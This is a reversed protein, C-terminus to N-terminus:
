KMRLFKNNYSESSNFLPRSTVLRLDESFKGFCGQITKEPAYVSSTKSLECSSEEPINENIDYQEEISDSLSEQYIKRSPCKTEGDIVSEEFVVLSSTEATVKKECGPHYRKM